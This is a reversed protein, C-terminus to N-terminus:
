FGSFMKEREQSYILHVKEAMELVKKNKLNGRSLQKPGMKNYLIINALAFPISYEAQIYNVPETNNLTIAKKHTFVEIKEIAQPDIKNKQKLSFFADIPFHSWRCSTYRKFYTNLIKYEEGLDNLHYDKSEEKHVLMSEVGLFGKGALSATSIAAAAAWGMAEKTQSGNEISKMVPALPAYAEAVGLANLFDKGSFNYLRSLGAAAGVIAWTGTGFFRNV